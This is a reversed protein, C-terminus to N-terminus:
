YDDSMVREVDDESGDPPAEAQEPPLLTDYRTLPSSLQYYDTSRHHLLRALAAFFLVDTTLLAAHIFLSRQWVPLASAIVVSLPLVFFWAGYIVGFRRYWSRRSSDQEAAASLVLRSGFWVAFAIHLASLAIGPTAEYANVTASSRELSLSWVSLLIYVMMLAALSLSFTERSPLTSKTLTWGAALSLLVAM